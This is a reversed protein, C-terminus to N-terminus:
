YDNSAKFGRGYVQISDTIIMFASEDIAFVMEKLRPLQIRSVTVLILMESQGSYAGKAPLFTCGRHLDHLIAHAIEEYHPSIILITESVGLGAEVQDIVQSSVFIAIASYMVVQIDIILALLGVVLLNLALSTQGINFGVLAKCYYSHYRDWRNIGQQSLHHGLGARGICRGIFGFASSGRHFLSLLHIFVFIQWPWYGWCATFLLRRSIFRYGALFIPINLLLIWIGIEIGTSYRLLIALGTVGGTLLSAPVLVCQIGAAAILSGTFIGVIDQWTIREVWKSFDPRHLAIKM